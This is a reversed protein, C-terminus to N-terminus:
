VIQAQILFILSIFLGFRNLIKKVILVILIIIKTEKNLCVIYNRQKKYAAIDATTRSKNAKNKLKSRLMIAKRIEKNM